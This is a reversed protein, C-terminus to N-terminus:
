GRGPGVARRPPRRRAPGRDDASGASCETEATAERTPNRTKWTPGRAAGRSVADSRPSARSWGSGQLWAAWALSGRGLAEALSPWARGPGGRGAQGSSPRPFRFSRRRSCKGGPASSRATPAPETGSRGSRRHFLLRCLPAVALGRLLRGASPRARLGRLLQQWDALDDGVGPRLHACLHVLRDDLLVCFVQGCAPGERRYGGEPVSAAGVQGVAEVPQAGVLAGPPRLDRRHDPVPRRIVREPAGQSGVPRVAVPQRARILLVGDLERELCPRLATLGSDCVLDPARLLVHALDPLSCSTTVQRIPDDARVFTRGPLAFWVAVPASPPPHSRLASLPFRSAPSLRIRCRAGRSRSVSEVAFGLRARFRESRITDTTAVSARFRVAWSSRISKRARSRVLSGSHIPSSSSARRLSPRSM